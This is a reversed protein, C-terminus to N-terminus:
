LTAAADVMNVVKAELVPRDRAPHRGFGCSPSLWLREEGVVRAWDAARARIKSVPEIWYNAEDVIGAAFQMSAPLARFADRELWESFYSCELNAVDVVGDLMQLLELWTANRLVGSAPRGKLNGNCIHLGRVTGTVSEFCGAIMEAAAESTMQGMNIAIGIAPADLQVHACGAEALGRIEANVIETVRPLQTERLEAQDAEHATIELPTVVTAKTVGGPLQSERRYAALYGLGNPADIEGTIRAHPVDDYDFLEHEGERDVVIGTLVKQIHNVFNDTFYEGGTWEDLGLQRQEDIAACASQTLVREGSSEDLQGDHLRRLDAAHGAPWWWSGVVTTRVAM